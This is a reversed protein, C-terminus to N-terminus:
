RDPRPSSSGQCRRRLGPTAPRAVRRAPRRTHGDAGRGPLRRCQPGSGSGPTRAGRRPNGPHRRVGPRHLTRHAALRGPRGRLDPPAPAHGDMDQDLTPGSSRSRTTIYRTTHHRTSRFRRGVEDKFITRVPPGTRKALRGRPALDAVMNVTPEPPFSSAGGQDPRPLITRGVWLTLIFMSMCGHTWSPVRDDRDPRQPAAIPLASSQRKAIRRSIIIIPCPLVTFPGRDNM